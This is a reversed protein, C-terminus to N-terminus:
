DAFCCSKHNKRKVDQNGRWPLHSGYAAPTEGEGERSSRKKGEKKVALLGM